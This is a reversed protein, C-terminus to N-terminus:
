RTMTCPKNFSAVRAASHRASSLTTRALAGPVDLWVKYEIPIPAATENAFRYVQFVIQDGNVFHAKNLLIECVATAFNPTGDTQFWWTANMLMKPGVVFIADIRM